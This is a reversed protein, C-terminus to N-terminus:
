LQLKTIKGCKPCKGKKGLANVPVNIKTGCHTCPLPIIEQGESVPAPKPKPPQEPSDLLNLTKNETSSVNDVSPLDHGAPSAVIPMEVKEISEPKQKDMLEDLKHNTIEISMNLNGLKSDIQEGTRVLKNIRFIWRILFVSVAIQIVSFVLIGVIFAILSPLLASIDETPPM